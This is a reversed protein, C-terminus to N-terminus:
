LIIFGRYFIWRCFIYTTLLLGILFAGYVGGSIAHGISSRFKRNNARQYGKKGELFGLAPCCFLAPIFCFYVLLFDDLNSNIRQNLALISLTIDFIGYILYTVPILALGGALAGSGANLVHLWRPMGPDVIFLYSKLTKMGDGESVSGFGTEDL